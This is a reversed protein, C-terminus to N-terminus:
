MISVAPRGTINRPGWEMMLVMCAPIVGMKKTHSSGAGVPFEVVM